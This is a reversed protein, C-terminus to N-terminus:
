VPYSPPIMVYRLQAKLALRLGHSMQMAPLSGRHLSSCIGPLPNPTMGPNQAAM